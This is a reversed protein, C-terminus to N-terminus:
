FCRLGVMKFIRKGYQEKIVFDVSMNYKPEGTDEKCSSVGM